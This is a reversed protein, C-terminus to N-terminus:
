KGVCFRSFIQSLLDDHYVRGTIAGLSEAATRLHVIPLTPDARSQLAAFAMSLEREAELLYRRHRESIAVGSQTLPVIDLLELIARKLESIGMKTMASICVTQNIGQITPPPGIGLDCKTRVLITKVKQNCITEKDESSLPQSAEVLHLRVDAQAILAKAREVGEREVPCGTERLGATDVLRIPIGELIVLEELTDRTTGPIPAVIARPRGLLVNMLTSKGVNPRGSIVVLAGERLCHGTNWTQLLNRITENALQIRREASEPLGAPVEDDDLFDLGAELDAAASVVTEYLGDVQHRLAGRLHEAAAVAARESQAAILDMVAEAQTLDLRGNLFARRTFEGPEALRAGSELVLRLLRRVSERGGHCQFEVVDERTYSRPARFILLVVEDYFGEPGEVRGVAFTGHPRQSPLPGSGRFLRDAIALSEPGSVRIIAIAGAGPPTALAAITENEKMAQKLRSM